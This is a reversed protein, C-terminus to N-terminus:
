TRSGVSQRLAQACSVGGVGLIKAATRWGPEFTGPDRGADTACSLCKAYELFTGGLRYPVVEICSILASCTKDHLVAYLHVLLCITCIVVRMTSVLAWRLGQGGIRARWGSATSWWAYWAEEPAGVDLRISNQCTQCVTDSRTWKSLQFFVLSAAEGLRAKRKAKSELVM